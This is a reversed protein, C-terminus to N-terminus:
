PEELTMPGLKGFKFDRLFLDVVKSRNVEGGSKLAGRARGIKDLLSEATDMEEVAIGYSAGLEQPYRKKLRLLLIFAAMERDFVDEQHRRDCCPSFGTEVKKLSKAM